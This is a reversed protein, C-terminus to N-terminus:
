RTSVSIRQASYRARFEDDLRRLRGRIRDLQGRPGLRERQRRIRDRQEVGADRRRPTEVEIRIFGTIPSAPAPPGLRRHSTGAAISSGGRFVGRRRLDALYPDWDAARDSADGHMLLLYERM